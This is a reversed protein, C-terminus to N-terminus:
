AGPVGKTKSCSQLTSTVLTVNELSQLVFIAAISCSEPTGLHRIISLGVEILGWAPRLREGSHNTLPRTVCRSGALALAAPSDM